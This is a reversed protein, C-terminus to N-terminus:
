VPPVSSLSDDIGPKRVSICVSSNCSMTRRTPQAMTPAVASMAGASRRSYATRSTVPVTSLRSRITADIRDLFNASPMSARTRSTLVPDPAKVAFAAAARARACARTSVPCAFPTIVEAMKVSIDCGAAVEQPLASSTIVAISARVSGDVRRDLRNIASVRASPPSASASPPNTASASSPAARMPM